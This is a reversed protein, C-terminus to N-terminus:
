SNSYHNTYENIEEHFDDDDNLLVNQSNASVLNTGDFVTLIDDDNNLIDNKDIIDRNINITNEDPKEYESPSRNNYCVVDNIDNSTLDPTPHNNVNSQSVETIEHTTVSIIPKVVVSTEPQMNQDITSSPSNM